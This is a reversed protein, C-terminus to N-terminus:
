LIACCPMEGATISNFTSCRACRWSTAGNPLDYPTQCKECYFRAHNSPIPTENKGDNTPVANTITIEEEHKNDYKNNDKNM